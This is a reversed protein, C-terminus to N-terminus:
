GRSRRAGCWGGRCWRGRATTSAPAGLDADDREESLLHCSSVLNRHGTAVIARPEGRRAAPRRYQAALSTGQLRAAGAM